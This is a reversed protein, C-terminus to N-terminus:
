IGLRQYAVSFLADTVIVLFIGQVVSITTARGVEAASGKVRFGQFCGVLAILAAFVPAKGIGAWFMGVPVAEPLRDLFTAFSVGYLASAVVAGGLVGLADAWITLLPLAIILGFLKPLVLMEFPTMGMTRLADIEETLRMTGLEAAYASGTRGAVVIAVVLPAMERLMTVGILDVLFINAGYVALVTGGQYAMVVGMLFALLGTIPLANVGAREVEGALQRWRLRHPRLLRPALDSAAEGVFAFFAWASRLHGVGAEGILALEGPRPRARPREGPDVAAEDVLAILHQWAPQVGDLRAAAGADRRLHALVLAGATDLRTVASLDFADFRGSALRPPQRALDAIGDATWAGTCRVVGDAGPEM